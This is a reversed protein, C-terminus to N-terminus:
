LPEVREAIREKLETIETRLENRMADLKADLTELLPDLGRAARIGAAVAGRAEDGRTRSRALLRARASRSRPWQEATASEHREFLWRLTGANLAIFAMLAATMTGLADWSMM